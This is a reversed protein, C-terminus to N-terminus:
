FFNGMSFEFRPSLRIDGWGRDFPYGWSFRLDGMPSRWRLELGASKKNDDKWNFKQRHDINVGMDFFPVVNLGLDQSLQFIYELNAYAMRTGGIRDNYPTTLDRPVIDRSKYGRVSDIGGMWFREFVPPFKGHENELLAGGVLKLHLVSNETVKKYFQTSAIFRVFSDDGGMFGGAYESTLSLISGDSPNRRDTTDRALRLSLVRASRDGAYQRLVNSVYNDFNFLKYFELRYGLVASSYEGLPYGVRVIGGFTDRDYDTYDNEWRYLNLGFSLKSDNVRPNLFSLDYANYLDSFQTQFGLHYGKGWLNTEQISGSVGFRSYTSYGVGGVISGTNREKLNIKIDVEEPNATPLLESEAQEFFGLNNLRRMSRSLLRGNFADGDVLRMERMIVNDRTHNNGEIIVNRVHVKQRKEISYLVFVGPDGGANSEKRTQPLVSAFAYGYEAYYETLAKIDDQLLSLSFYENDRAAEHMATLSALTADSDILEGAFGVGSVRYRPGEEVTYTIVIGDEKYEVVPAHVLVDIFGNNMYFAGIASVDRELLEEQLVGSNTFVSFLWRESLAMEGKLTRESFSEAGKVAITEIFLRNGETVDMILRTSAGEDEDELRSNVTALYHGKKRYVEIIAQIDTKLVRENLVAGPQTSMAVRLDEEDVAQINEFVIGSIRPKETVNYILNIGEDSQELDLVIDSFYGLEWIRKLERDLAQFDIPDGRRTNIRLLVMDPNLSRTGRVEVRSIVSNKRVESNIQAALDEVAFLLNGADRQTAKLTRVREAPDAWVLRGDLLLSGGPRTCTGYVAVNARSGALLSRVAAADPASLNGGELLSSVEEPPMVVLGKALLRQVMLQHLENEPVGGAGEGVVRFPLVMIMDEDLPTSAGAPVSLGLLFSLLFFAAWFRPGGGPSFRECGSKLLFSNAGSM